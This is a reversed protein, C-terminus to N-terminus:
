YFNTLAYELCFQPFVVERDLENSVDILDSKVGNWKIQFNQSIYMNLILRIIIPSLGRNLLKEFLKVFHIRDFAKSADFMLVNVNGQYHAITQNVM